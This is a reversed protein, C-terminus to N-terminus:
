TYLMSLVYNFRTLHLGIKSLLQSRTPKYQNHPAGGVVDLIVGEGVNDFLDFLLLGSRQGAGGNDCHQLLGAELLHLKM